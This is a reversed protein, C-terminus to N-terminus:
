NSLAYLMNLRSYKGSSVKELVKLTFIAQVIKKPQNM